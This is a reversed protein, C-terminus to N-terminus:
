KININALECGNITNEDVKNILYTLSDYVTNNIAKNLAWFIILYANPPMSVPLFTIAKIYNTFFPISACERLTKLHVKLEGVNKSRKVNEILDNFNKKKNNRDVANVTCLIKQISNLENELADYSIKDKKRISTSIFFKHLNNKFDTFISM